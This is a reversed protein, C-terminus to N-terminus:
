SSRLRVIMEIEVSAKRPLAAVGVTSRASRGAEGFVEILLESAGDLVAPLDEFAPDARVFGVVKVIREVRDLDGVAGALASLSRLCAGRASLRADELSLESGVIGAYAIEGNEIAVVGSVYALGGDTVVPAYAGAPPRPAALEIGLERLREDIASM